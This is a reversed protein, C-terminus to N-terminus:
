EKEETNENEMRKINAKGLQYVFALLLPLVIILSSMRILTDQISGKTIILNIILMLIFVIVGVYKLTKKLTELKM